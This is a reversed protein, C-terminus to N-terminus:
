AAERQQVKTRLWSLGQEITGREFATIASNPSANFVEIKAAKLQPVTSGYYAAWFGWCDARKLQKHWPYDEHHHAGDASYDYGLLLVTKARKLYAVGLAGYGSTGCSILQSPNSSLKNTLLRTMITANIPKKLKSGTAIILEMGGAIKDKLRDFRQEIFMHDISVGVDCRPLCFISENVGVLWADFELLSNFDFGRLSSGGAVIIVPKDQWFPSGIQAKM